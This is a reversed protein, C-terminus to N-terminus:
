DSEQWVQDITNYILESSFGRRQLLSRISKSYQLYNQDVQRDKKSKAIRYANYQDDVDSIAESITESDVGKQRLELELLRRSKPRHAERNERWFTAFANDDILGKKKLYSLAQQIIDNNFGSRRLKVAIEAESRPRPALYRLATNISQRISDARELTEIDRPSLAQGQHLNMEAATENSLAFTYGDALQITIKKNRGKPRDIAIVKNM